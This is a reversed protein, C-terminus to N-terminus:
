DEIEYLDYRKRLTEEETNPFEEMLYILIAYIYTNVVETFHLVANELLEKKREDYVNEYIRKMGEISKIAKDKAVSSDQLARDLSGKNTLFERNDIISELKDSYSNLLTTFHRLDLKMGENLFSEVFSNSCIKNAEGIIRLLDVTLSNITIM